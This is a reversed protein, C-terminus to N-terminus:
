PSRPASRQSDEVSVLIEKARSSNTKAEDGERLKVEEEEDILDMGILEEILVSDRKKDASPNSLAQLNLALSSALNTDSPGNLSLHVNRTSGSERDDVSEEDQESKASL